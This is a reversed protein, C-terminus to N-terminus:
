PLDQNNLQQLFSFNNQNQSGHFEQANPRSNTMGYRYQSRTDQIPYTMPSVAAPNSRTPLQSRTDQMPYTMPSVVNPNSQTVLAGMLQLFADDRAAQRQSDEKLFNLIERSSTDTALTKLSTMTEKMENLLADTQARPKKGSSHTPVYKRKGNSTKQDSAISFTSSTSSPSVHNVSEHNLLDDPTISGPELAQEPQCNDMSGIIPLLKGFWNGLDKEEQFRKIGSSTKVKIVADRCINICRKFKQRTEAVSFSFEENREKCRLSILEIVKGYYQGNKKNKVNTLLLKEKLKEDDLIVDVLGDVFHEPWQEKTGKQERRKKRLYRKGLYGKTIQIM